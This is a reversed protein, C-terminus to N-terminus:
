IQSVNLQMILLLLSISSRTIIIATVFVNWHPIQSQQGEASLGFFLHFLLLFHEILEFHFLFCTFYYHWCAVLEHNFSQSLEFFGDNQETFRYTMM